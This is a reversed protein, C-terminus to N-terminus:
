LMAVAVVPARCVGPAVAKGPLGECSLWGAFVAGAAPCGGGGWFFDGVRCFFDFVGFRGRHAGAVNRPDQSGSRLPDGRPGRPIVGRPSM